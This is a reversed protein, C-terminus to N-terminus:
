INAWKNQHQKKAKRAKGSYRETGLGVRQPLETRFHAAAIPLRSRRQVTFQKRHKTSQISSSHQAYNGVTGTLLSKGETNRVEISVVSEYLM